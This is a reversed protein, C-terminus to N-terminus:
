CKICASGANASAVDKRKIELVMAGDSGISHATLDTPAPLGHAHRDHRRAPYKTDM